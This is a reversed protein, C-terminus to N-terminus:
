NIMFEAQNNSVEIKRCSEWSYLVLHFLHWDHIILPVTREDLLIQHAWLCKIRGFQPGFILTIRIVSDFCINEWRCDSQEEHCCLKLGETPGRQFIWIIFPQHLLLRLRTEPLYEVLTVRRLRKFVNELSHRLMVRFLPGVQKFKDILVVEQLFLTIIDTTLHDQFAYFGFSALDTFVNTVEHCVSIQILWGGGDEIVHYGLM